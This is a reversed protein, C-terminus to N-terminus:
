SRLEKVLNRLELHLWNKDIADLNWLAMDILSALIRELREIRDTESM